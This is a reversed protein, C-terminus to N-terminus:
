RLKIFEPLKYNNEFFAATPKYYRAYTDWKGDPTPLPNLDNADGGFTVTVSGDANKEAYKSNVNYIGFENEVILGADNYVTFSWFEGVPVDTM